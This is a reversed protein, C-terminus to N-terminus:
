IVQPDIELSKIQEDFYQLSYTQKDTQRDV